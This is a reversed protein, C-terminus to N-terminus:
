GREDVRKDHLVRGLRQVDTTGGKTTSLTPVGQHRQGARHLDGTHHHPRASRSPSPPTGSAIVTGAPSNANATWSFGVSTGTFDDNFVTITRTM